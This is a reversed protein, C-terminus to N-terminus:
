RVCGTFPGTEIELLLTDCKAWLYQDKGDSDLSSGIRVSGLYMCSTANTSLLRITMCAGLISSCGLRMRCATIHSTVHSHTPFSNTSRCNTAIRCMFRDFAVKSLMRFADLNLVDRFAVSSAGRKLTPPQRVCRATVSPCLRFSAGQRTETPTSLTNRVCQDPWRNAGDSEARPDIYAVRELSTLIRTVHKYFSFMCTDWVHKVLNLNSRQGCPRRSEVPIVLVNVSTV